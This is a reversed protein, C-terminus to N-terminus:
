LIHIVHIGQAPDEATGGYVHIQKIRLYAEPFGDNHAAKQM